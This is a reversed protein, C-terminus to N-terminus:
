LEYEEEIALEDLKAELAPSLPFAPAFAYADIWDRSVEDEEGAENVFQIMRKAPSEDELAVGYYVPGAPRNGFQGGGVCFSILDHKKIM